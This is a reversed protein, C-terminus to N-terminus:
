TTERLAVVVDRVFIPNTGRVHVERVRSQQTLARVNPGRVGGGALITLRSGTYEQWTRLQPAGDLATDAQGSTLVYQVGRTLLTDLAHIANVTQDFARHFAVRMPGAAHVLQALQADHVTREATLPGVVVGDMGMTKADAISRCMVDIDADSYLFSHTHPRIMVHIPIDLAARCARMLAPPPTTGGDGDGCLEIRHAGYERAKLATALSDCCAEVLIDGPVDRSIDGPSAEATTRSPSRSPETM